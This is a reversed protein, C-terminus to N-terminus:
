VSNTPGVPYCEAQISMELQEGTKVLADLDQKYRDLNTM